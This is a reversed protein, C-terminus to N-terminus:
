STCTFASSVQTVQPTTFPLNPHPSLTVLATYIHSSSLSHELLSPPMYVTSTFFPIIAITACYHHLICVAPFFKRCTVPVGQDQSQQYPPLSPDHCIFPGLVLNQRGFVGDEIHLKLQFKKWKEKCKIMMERTMWEPKSVIFILDLLGDGPVQARFPSSFVSKIWRAICVWLEVQM